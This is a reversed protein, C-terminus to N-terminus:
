GHLNVALGNDARRQAWTVCELKFDDMALNFEDIEFPDSDEETDDVDSDDVDDLDEREDQNEDEDDGDEAESEDEDEDDDGSDADPMAVGKIVRDRWDVWMKPSMAVMKPLYAGLMRNVFFTKEDSYMAEMQSIQLERRRKSMRSLKYPLSQWIHLLAVVAANTKEQERDEWAELKELHESLVITGDALSGYGEPVGYTYPDLKEERGRKRTRHPGWPWTYWDNRKCPLEFFEDEYWGPYERDAADWFNKIEARMTDDKRTSGAKIFFQTYFEETRCNVCDCCGHPGSPISRYALLRPVKLAETDAPNASVKSWFAQSFVKRIYSAPVRWELDVEVEAAPLAHLFMGGGRVCRLYHECKRRSPWDSMTISDGGHSIIGGFVTNEWDYGEESFNQDEFGIRDRASFRANHVAHSVEHCLTVALGLYIERLKDTAHIDDYAECIEEYTTPDIIIDSANGEFGSLALNLRSEASCTAGAFGCRCLRPSGYFRVHQALGAFKLRVQAVEKATLATEKRAIAKSTQSPDNSSPFHKLSFFAAYWYQMLCPTELLLSALRLAPELVEYRVGYFNRAAFLVNIDNDLEFRDSCNSDSQIAAFEDGSLLLDVDYNEYATHSVSLQCSAASWPKPDHQWKESLLEPKPPSYPPILVHSHAASSTWCVLPACPPSIIHTHAVSSTWVTPTDVQSKARPLVPKPPSHPPILIHTHAASSTWCIQPSPPPILMQTHAVSSTWCGTNNYEAM